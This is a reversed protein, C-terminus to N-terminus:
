IGSAVIDTLAVAKPEPALGVLELAEGAIPMGRVVRGSVAVSDHRKLYLGEEEIELLFPKAVRAVVTNEDQDEAKISSVEKSAIREARTHARRHRLQSSLSHAQSTVRRQLQPSVRAM